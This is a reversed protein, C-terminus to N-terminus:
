SAIEPRQPVYGLRWRERFREPPRGFIRVEGGDPSLSGLLLKLLTSKGSGNPGVLAVFEGSRVALTVDRLVPDRGYAFSVGRAEVLPAGPEPRVAPGPEAAAL